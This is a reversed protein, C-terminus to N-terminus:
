KDKKDSPPSGPKAKPHGPMPAMKLQESNLLGDLRKVLEGFLEQMPKNVEALQKELGARAEPALDKQALQKKLEEAKGAMREAPAKARKQIEFLIGRASGQVAPDLSYYKIYREVFGGWDNANTQDFQRDGNKVTTGIVGAQPAGSNNGKPGRPGDGYLKQRLRRAASGDTPITGDAPLGWDDPKWDGSEWKMMMKRSTEFRDQCLKWDEELMKKQDDDMITQMEQTAKQLMEQGGEMIPRYMQVYKQVAQSTLPQEWVKEAQMQKMMDMMVPGSKVMYQVSERVLMNKVYTKQEPRLNYRQGLEDSIIGFRAELNFPETHKLREHMRLVMKDAPTNWNNENIMKETIHDNLANIKPWVSPDLPVDEVRPVGKPPVAPPDQAQVASWGGLFAGGVMWVVVVKHLITSLTKM